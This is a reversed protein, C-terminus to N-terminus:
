SKANTTEETKAAPLLRSSYRHYLWAGALLLVPILLAPLALGARRFRRNMNASSM